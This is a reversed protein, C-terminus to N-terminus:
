RDLAEAQPIGAAEWSPDVALAELLVRDHDFCLHAAFLCWTPEATPGVRSVPVPPVAQRRSPCGGHPELTLLPCGQWKGRLSSPLRHPFTFLLILLTGQSCM